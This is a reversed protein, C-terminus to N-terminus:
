VEELVVLADPLENRDDNSAPLKEALQQGVEAITKVFADTLGENKLRATFEDCLANITPQTLLDLVAQDTMIAAQHEFLSVYLLIGSQGKTHHVRQDFFVQQARRSVEQSRESQPTFLRRLSPIWHSLVVGGIFGLMVAGVLSLPYWLVSSGGWSGPVRDPPAFLIWVALLCTVGLWLGCIDEARDYRGSSKAVIPVIEAATKSEAEAIASNIAKRQEDTIPINIM